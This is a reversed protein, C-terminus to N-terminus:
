TRLCNNFPKKRQKRRNEEEKEREEGRQQSPVPVNPRTNKARCLSVTLRSKIPASLSLSFSLEAKKEKQM